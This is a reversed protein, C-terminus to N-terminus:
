SAPRTAEECIVLGGRVSGIMVNVRVSRASAKRVRARVDEHALVLTDQGGPPAAHVPPAPPAPPLPVLLLPPLQRAVPMVQAENESQQLPMQALSTQMAHPASPWGHSSPQQEPRSHTFSRQPGAHAAPSMDQTFARSQQEFTHELPVQTPLQVLSPAAQM